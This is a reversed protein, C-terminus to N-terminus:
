FVTLGPPPVGCLLVYARDNGFVAIVRGTAFLSNAPVRNFATRSEGIRILLAM